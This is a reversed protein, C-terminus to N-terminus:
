RNLSPPMEPREALVITVTKEAGDRVYTIEVRQGPVLRQTIARM